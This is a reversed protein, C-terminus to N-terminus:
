AAEIAISIVAILLFAAFALRALAATATARGSFGFIASVIMLAFAAIAIWVFVPMEGTRREEM